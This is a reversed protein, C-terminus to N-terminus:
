EHNIKSNSKHALKEVEILRNQLKALENDKLRLEQEMKLISIRAKAEFYPKLDVGIVTLAAAMVIMSDALSRVWQWADSNRRKPKIESM